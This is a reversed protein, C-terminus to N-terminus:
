SAQIHNLYRLEPTQFRQFYSIIYENNNRKWQNISYYIKVIRAIREVLKEKALINLIKEIIGM